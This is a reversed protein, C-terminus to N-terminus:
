GSLYRFALVLLRGVVLAMLAVALLFYRQHVM